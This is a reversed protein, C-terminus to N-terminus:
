RPFYIGRHQTETQRMPEWQDYITLINKCNLVRKKIHRVILRNIVCNDALHKRVTFTSQPILGSGSCIRTGIRTGQFSINLTRTTSDAHKAQLITTSQWYPGSAAASGTFPETIAFAALARIYRQVPIM